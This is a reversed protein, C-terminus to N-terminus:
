VWITVSAADGDDLGEKRRVEAKVPLLYADAKTDFWIATKWETGGIRANAPLRGWDQEGAKLVSRIQASVDAPVTVFYWGAPGPYRWIAAEFPIRIRATM